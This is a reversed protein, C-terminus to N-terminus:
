RVQKQHQRLQHRAAAAAHLPLAQEPPLYLWLMAAVLEALIALPLPVHLGALAIGTIILFATV